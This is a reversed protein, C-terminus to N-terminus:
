GDCLCIYIYMFVQAVVKNNDMERRRWSFWWRGPKKSMKNKVLQEVTSKLILCLFNNRREAVM